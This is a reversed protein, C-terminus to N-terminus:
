RVATWHDIWHQYGNFFKWIIPTTFANSTTALIDVTSNADMIVASGDKKVIINQSRTGITPYDSTVNTLKCPGKHVKTSNNMSYITGEEASSRWTDFSCLSPEFKDCTDGGFNHICHCIGDKDCTGNNDCQCEECLGNCGCACAPRNAVGGGGGGPSDRGGV